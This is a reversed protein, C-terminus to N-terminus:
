KKVLAAFTPHKRLAKFDPDTKLSAVSGDLYGTKIARSLLDIARVHDGAATALAALRRLIRSKPGCAQEAADLWVGVEDPPLVGAIVLERLPNALYWHHSSTLESMRATAYALLEATAGLESIRRTIAAEAQRAALETARAGRWRRGREALTPGDFRERYLAAEPDSREPSAHVPALDTWAERWTAYTAEDMAFPPPTTATFRVGGDIAVREGRYREIATAEAIWIRWSPAVLKELTGAEGKPFRFPTARGFWSPVDLQPDAAFLEIVQDVLDLQNTSSNFLSFPALWLAPGMWAVTASLEAFLAEALALWRSHGLQDLPFGISLTGRDEADRCLSLHIAFSAPLLDASGDKFYLDTHASPMTRMAAFTKTLLTRGAGTLTKPSAIRVCDDKSKTLFGRYTVGPPALALVRTLATDVARGLHGAKGPFRLTIAAMPLVKEAVYSGALVRGIRARLAEAAAFDTM